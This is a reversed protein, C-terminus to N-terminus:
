HPNRKEFPTEDIKELNIKKELFNLRAELRDTDNRVQDVQSFFDQLEIRTPLWRAEEQVYETIDQTLTNVSQKAWNSVERFLNGIQHAIVDGTLHSLQEEWDINLNAFLIKFDQATETDGIVTIDSAFIAASSSQKTLRLFSFPSGRLTVDVIGEYEDLLHIGDRTFLWYIRSEFPPFELAIVKGALPILRKDTDSDLKLFSNLIKEAPALALSFLM